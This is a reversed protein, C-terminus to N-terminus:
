QRSLSDATLSKLEDFTKQDIKRLDRIEDKEDKPTTEVAYTFSYCGKKIKLDDTLRVEIDSKNKILFAISYELSKGKPTTTLSSYIIELVTEPKHTVTNQDYTVLWTEGSYDADYVLKKNPMLAAKFPIVYLYYGGNFVMKRDPKMGSYYSSLEDIVAAYGRICGILTNSTHIRLMTNDESPAAKKSVNPVLEDFKMRALHLLYRSGTDEPTVIKVNKVVKPNSMQLLNRMKAVDAEYTM